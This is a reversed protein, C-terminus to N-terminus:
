KFDMKNKEYYRPPNGIINKFTRSFSSFNIFGCETSILNLPKETSIIMELAKNVKFRRIYEALSINFKNIFQKALYKSNIGAHRAVDDSTINKSYNEEIFRISKFIYNIYEGSHAPSKANEESQSLRSYMILFQVLYTKLALEWGTNKNERESHMKELLIILEHRNDSAINILPFNKNDTETLFNLGTLATVKESVESIENLDFIINYLKVNNVSFYMHCNNLGVAFLDGPILITTKGNFSHLSFGSEIFVFEIYTHFHFVCNEDHVSPTVKIYPLMCDFSKEGLLLYSGNNEYAVCPNTEEPM